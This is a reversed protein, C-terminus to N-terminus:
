AAKAKAIAAVAYADVEELQHVLVIIDETLPECHLSERYEAVHPILAECATLLDANEDRLRAVTSELLARGVSARSLEDNLQDIRRGIYLRRQTEYSPCFPKHWGDTYALNGCETCWAM